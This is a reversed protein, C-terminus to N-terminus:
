KNVPILKFVRVRDSLLKGIECESVKRMHFGDIHEYQIIAYTNEDSVLEQLNEMTVKQEQMKFM